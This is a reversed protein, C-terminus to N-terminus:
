VTASGLPEVDRIVFFGKLPCLGSGLGHVKCNGCGTVRPGMKFM